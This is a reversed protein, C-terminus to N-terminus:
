ATLKTELEALDRVFWVTTGRNSERIFDRLPASAAAAATVDGVIAVQFRYTVLKQLLEGAVRTSLKLFDPGLRALPIAAWRAGCSYLEGILHTLAAYDALCAGVEPCVFVREGAIDRVSM